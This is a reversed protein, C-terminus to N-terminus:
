QIDASGLQRCGYWGCRARDQRIESALCPWAQNTSPYPIVQSYRTSYAKQRGRRVEWAAWHYLIQRDICSVCTQVRLWSSGRSFSVVVLEQGPFGMSLPAQHAVTWPTTFSDSVVSCTFPSLTKLFVCVSKLKRWILLECEEEGCVCFYFLNMFGLTQQNRGWLDKKFQVPFLWCDGSYLMYSLAHAQHLVLSVGAGEELAQSGTVSAHCWAPWCPWQLAGWLARGEGPPRVVSTASCGRGEPGEVTGAPQPLAHACHPESPGAARLVATHVLGRLEWPGSPCRAGLLGWPKERGPTLTLRPSCTRGLPLM